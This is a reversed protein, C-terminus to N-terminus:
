KGVEQKLATIVNSNYQQGGQLIGDLGAVLHPAGIYRHLDVRNGAAELKGAYVEGEDRLPDLEATSVLAPALNRFNTALMPSIKWDQELYILKAM